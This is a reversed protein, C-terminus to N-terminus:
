RIKLVWSLAPDYGLSGPLNLSIHDWHFASSRDGPDGMCLELGRVHMRLAFYPSSQWGFVLRGWRMYREVEFGKAAM